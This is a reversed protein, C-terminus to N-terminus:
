ALLNEEKQKLKLYTDTKKSIIELSVLKRTSYVFNFIKNLFSVYKIVICTLLFNLSLNTVPLFHVSIICQWKMLLGINNHEVQQWAQTM